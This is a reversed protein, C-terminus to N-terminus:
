PLSAISVEGSSAISCDLEQFEGTNSDVWAIQKVGPHYDCGIIIMKLEKRGPGHNTLAM